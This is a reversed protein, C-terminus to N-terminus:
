PAPAACRCPWQIWASKLLQFLGCSPVHMHGAAAGYTVWRRGAGRHRESCSFRPRQKQQRFFTPRSPKSHRHAHRSRPHLHPLPRAKRMYQGQQGRWGERRCGAVDADPRLDDCRACGGAGCAAQGAGAWGGGRGGGAAAAPIHKAAPVPVRAVVGAGEVVGGKVLGVQGLGVVLHHGGLHVLESACGSRRPRGGAQCSRRASRRGAQCTRGSPRFPLLACGDGGGWLHVLSSVECVWAWVHGRGTTCVGWACVCAGGLARAPGHQSM